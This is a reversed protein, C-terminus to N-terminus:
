LFVRGFLCSSALKTVILAIERGEADHEEMWQVKDKVNAFDDALSIYHVWPEKLEETAWSTCTIKTMLM